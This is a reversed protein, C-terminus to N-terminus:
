FLHAGISLMHAYFFSYADAYAHANRRKLPEFYQEAMLAVPQRFGHLYDAFCSLAALMGQFIAHGESTSDQVQAWKEEDAMLREFTHYNSEEDM